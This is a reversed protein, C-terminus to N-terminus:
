SAGPKTTDLTLNKTKEQRRQKKKKQDRRAQARKTQIRKLGTNIYYKKNKTKM